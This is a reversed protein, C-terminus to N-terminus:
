DDFALQSVKLGLANAIRRQTDAKLTTSQELQAYAPQTISMRKAVELQTMGLYKRWARIMTYGKRVSLGVVEHPINAEEKESVYDEYPVLVFEPRGHRDRIIQYEIPKSM